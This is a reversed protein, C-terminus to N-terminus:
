HVGHAANRARFAAPNEFSLAWIGRQARRAQAEEASYRGFAIAHGSKVMEANLEVDGAHCVALTRAFRDRGHDLCQVPGRALLAALAERAARGCAVDVAGKQCSQYLEPADIGELRVERGQLRLSDGDIAYAQGEFRSSDDLRHMIFAVVAAACLLVLVAKLGDVLRFFLRKLVIHGVCPLDGAAGDDGKAM